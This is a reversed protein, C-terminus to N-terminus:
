WELVEADYKKADVNAAPPLPVNRLTCYWKLVETGTTGKIETLFHTRRHVLYLFGSTCNIVMLMVGSM